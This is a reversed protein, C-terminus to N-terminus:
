EIRNPYENIKWKPITISEYYGDNNTDAMITTYMTSGVIITVVTGIIILLILGFAILKIKALQKKARNVRLWQEKYERTFVKDLEEDTMSKVEKKYSM